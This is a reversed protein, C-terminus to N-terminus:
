SPTAPETHGLTSDCWLANPMLVATAESVSQHQRLVTKTDLAGGHDTYGPLCLHGCATLLLCLGQM